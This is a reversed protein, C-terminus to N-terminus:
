LVEDVSVKRIAHKMACRINALSSADKPVFIKHLDGANNPLVLAIESATNKKDRLISQEFLRWDIQGELHSRAVGTTKLASLCFDQLLKGAGHKNNGSFELAALMGYGVAIGHQVRYATSAELAHGFTHGFNLLQRENRDFEDVEVFWKKAQLTKELLSLWNAPSVKGSLAPEAVVSGFDKPNKAFLIKVSEFIGAMLTDGPLSKLFSTSIFIGSPPYFNGIANKGTAINISSKGGICSDAMGILTTPAYDWQIGRMFIAASLTVVDQIFGGGIALIRGQRTCGANLLFSCIDEVTSLTKAGEDAKIRLTPLSVLGLPVPVNEDIILAVYEESAVLDDELLQISYSGLSSNITIRSM